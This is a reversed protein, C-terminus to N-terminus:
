GDVIEDRAQLAPGQDVSDGSRPDPEFGCLAVFSGTSVIEAGRARARDALRRDASVVVRREFQEARARVQAVIWDDASPAFICRLRPQSPGVSPTDEQPAAEEAQPLQRADFVLCIEDAPASLRAAMELLAERREATWWRPEAGRESDRGPGGPQRPEVEAASTLSVRLVNYGDVLWLTRVTM